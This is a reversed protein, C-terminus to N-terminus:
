PLFREDWDLGVERVLRRYEDLFTEGRHHEDQRKIYEIVREREGWSKTFAEYGEQSHRFRPFSGHGRLWQGTSLKLEKIINALNKDPYISVLAHVHDEMSNIRYVHCKLGRLVGVTYALFERRQALNLTPERDKTAFVIHYLVQTYTSM